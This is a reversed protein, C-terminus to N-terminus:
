CDLERVKNWKTLPTGGMWVTYLLMPLFTPIRRNGCGQTLIVTKNSLQRDQEERVNRLM